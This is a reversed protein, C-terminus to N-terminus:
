MTLIPLMVNMYYAVHTSLYLLQKTTASMGRVLRIVHVNGM